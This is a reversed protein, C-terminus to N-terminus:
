YKYLKVMIDFLIILKLVSVNHFFSICNPSIIPKITVGIKDICVNTYKTAVFFFKSNALLIFPTNPNGPNINNDLKTIHLGTSDIDAANQEISVIFVLNVHIPNNIANGNGINKNETYTICSYISLPKTV